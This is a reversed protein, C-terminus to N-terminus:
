FGLDAKMNAELDLLNEIQVHYSNEHQGRMNKLRNVTERPLRVWTWDINAM